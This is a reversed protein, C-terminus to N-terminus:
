FSRPDFTTLAFPTVAVSAGSRASCDVDGADFVFVEVALDLFNESSDLADFAPELTKSISDTANFDVKVQYQLSLAGSREDPEGFSQANTGGTRDACTATRVAGHRYVVGNTALSAVERM